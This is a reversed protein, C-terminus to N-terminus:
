FALLHHVQVPALVIKREFTTEEHKGERDNKRRDNTTKDAGAGCSFCHAHSRGTYGTNRRACCNHYCKRDTVCHSRCKQYVKRCFKCVFGASVVVDGESEPHILPPHM